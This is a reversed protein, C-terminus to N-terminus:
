EFSPSSSVSIAFHSWSREIPTRVNWSSQSSM